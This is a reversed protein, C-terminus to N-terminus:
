YRWDSKAGKSRLYETVAGHRGEVAYNLPTKKNNDVADYDGGYEVLLEVFPKCGYKAAIHL